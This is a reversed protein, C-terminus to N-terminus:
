SKSNSNDELKELALSAEDKLVDVAANGQDSEILNSQQQEQAKATATLGDKGGAFNTVM